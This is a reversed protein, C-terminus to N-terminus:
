AFKNSACDFLGTYCEKLKDKMYMESTRICKKLDLLWAENLTSQM